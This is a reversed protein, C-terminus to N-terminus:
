SPQKAAKSKPQKLVPKAAPKQEPKAQQQQGGQGALPMPAALFGKRRAYEECLETVNHHTGPHYTVVEREDPSFKFETAVEITGM